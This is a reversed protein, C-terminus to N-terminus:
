LSPARPRWGEMGDRQQRRRRHHGRRRLRRHHASQPPLHIKGSYPTLSHHSIPNHNPPALVQPILLDRYNLSAGQMQVLVDDAGVEPIPRDQYVLSDFGDGTGQILWQKQSTPLSM